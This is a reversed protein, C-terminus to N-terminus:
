KHPAGQIRAIVANVIDHTKVNFHTARIACQNITQMAINDIAAAIEDASSRIGDTPLPGRQATRAIKNLTRLEDTPRHREM